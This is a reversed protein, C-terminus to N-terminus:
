RCSNWGYEGDNEKELIKGKAPRYHKKSPSYVLFDALLGTEPHLALQDQLVAITSDLVQKWEKSRKTDEQMLM